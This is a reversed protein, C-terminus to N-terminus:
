LWEEVESNILHPYDYCRYRPIITIVTNVHLVGTQYLTFETYPNTAVKAILLNKVWLKWSLYLVKFFNKVYIIKHNVRCKNRNNRAGGWFVSQSETM